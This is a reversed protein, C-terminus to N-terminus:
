GEGLRERALSSSAAPVQWRMAWGSSWEMGATLRRMVDVYSESRFLALGLNFCATVRAPLLRPWEERRGLVAVAADVMEPPFVRTLVGVSLDDTLREDPHPAM